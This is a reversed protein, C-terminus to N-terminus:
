LDHTTDGNAMDWCGFSLYITARWQIPSTTKVDGFFHIHLLVYLVWSESSTVWAVVLQANAQKVYPSRVPDLTRLCSHGYTFTNKM